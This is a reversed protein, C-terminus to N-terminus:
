MQLTRFHNCFASGCIFHKCRERVIDGARGDFHGFEDNMSSSSSETCSNDDHKSRKERSRFQKERSNVKHRKRTDGGGADEPSRRRM